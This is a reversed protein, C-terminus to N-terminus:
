IKKAGEGPKRREGLDATITYAFKRSTLWFVLASIGVCVLGPTFSGAADRVSGLMLILFVNTFNAIMNMFGVSTAVYDQQSIDITLTFVSSYTCGCLIALPLALLIIPLPAPTFAIVCYVIGAVLVTRRLIFPRPVYRILEGGFARGMTGLLLLIGTILAFDEIGSGPRTDSLIAPLWNGIVNLSGFSLGHCCGIFWLAKSGSIAKLSRWMAAAGAGSMSNEELTRLPLRFMGIILLLSFIGCGIYSAAWGYAGMSPLVLYPVMTGFSFAAGQAGQVRSIRSPPVLIKAIKVTVLFMAGSSMGLSFRAIIALALSDPALFPALSSTICVGLWLYLSRVVGLRDILVGAPIQILSQTWFFASLFFSLGGFGVGFLDMFQNAVPPICMAMWGLGFSFLVPYWFYAPISM